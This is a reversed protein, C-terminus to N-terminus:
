QSPRLTYSFHRILPLRNNLMSIQRIPATSQWVNLIQIIPATSQWVNESRDSLPLRNDCMLPRYITYYPCDITLCQPYTYYPHDITVFHPDTYYPATSQWVILILRIPATSKWAFNHDTYYQLPLRNDCMSFWDLLPLRNDYLIIIQIIPATSQRVCNDDTFYPCDITM